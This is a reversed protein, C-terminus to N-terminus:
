PPPFHTGQHVAEEQRRRERYVIHEVGEALKIRTTYSRVRDRVLQQVLVGDQGTCYGSSLEFIREVDTEIASLWRNVASLVQDQLQLLSITKNLIRRHLHAPIGKFTNNDVADNACQEQLLIRRRLLENYTSLYKNRQWHIYDIHNRELDYPCAGLPPEEEDDPLWEEDDTLYKDDDM